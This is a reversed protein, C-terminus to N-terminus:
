RWLFYANKPLQSELLVLASNIKKADGEPTLFFQVSNFAVSNKERAIILDGIHIWNKPISDLFWNKYIMVVGIKKSKIKEEMWKETIIKPRGSGLGFLDVVLYPNRYSVLGIDNVAVSDRYFESAFKRMQEQQLYLDESGNPTKLTVEVYPAGAVFLCFFMVFFAKFPRDHFALNLEKNWSWYIIILLIIYVYIEYRAFSGFHGFLIHGVVIFAIFFAVYFNKPSSLNVKNKVLLGVIAVALGFLLVVGQRDGVSRIANDFVLHLYKKESVESIGTKILISNPIFPLDLLYLMFSFATLFVFLLFLLFLASKLSRCLALVFISAVSLSLNEFRILPGAIIAPYFLFFIKNERILVILGYIVWLSLMLQLGHEMGNFPMGLMNSSLVVAILILNLRWGHLGFKKGIKLLFLCSVIASFFGILLPVFLHFHANAFFALFFPYLISSSPSSSEDLNLGYHGLAIHRSLELHIYSDDLSYFYLGDTLNKIKSLIVGFFFCYIFVLFIADFEFKSSIKKM